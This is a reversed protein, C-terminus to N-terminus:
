PKCESCGSCGTCWNSFRKEPGREDEGTSAVPWKFASAPATGDHAASLEENLGACRRTLVLTAENAIRLDNELEAVRLKLNRVECKLSANKATADAAQQHAVLGAANAFTEDAPSEHLAAILRSTPCPFRESCRVCNEDGVGGKRERHQLDLVALEEDTPFGPASM